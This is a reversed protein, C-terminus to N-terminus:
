LWNFQATALDDFNAKVKIREGQPIYKPGYYDYMDFVVVGLFERFQMNLVTKIYEESMGGEYFIDYAYLTKIKNNIRKFFIPLGAILGDTEIKKILKIEDEHNFQGLTKVWAQKMFELYTVSGYGVLPKVGAYFNLVGFIMFLSPYIEKKKLLDIIAERELPVALEKFREDKTMLKEGVMYLRLSQPRGPYKRWFFHTGKEKSEKWTVVIGRFNDLVSQRFEKNFLCRSIINDEKLIEILAETVIEEQTIYILEFLNPRLKKEFLYPWTNKIIITIQDLYNECRSFDLNKIKEFEVMLFDKEAKSFEKWKDAAKAKAIFDFDRKPIYYSCYERESNSFIPVRKDHFTFGNKSFYNNPPVDGSSIIITANEKRGSFIKDAGSIFNSSILVPHNLVQHHDAINFALKGELNINLDEKYNHGFLKEIKRSIIKKLIDQRKLHEKDAEFNYLEKPFDKLKVDLEFFRGLPPAYKKIQSIVLQKEKEIEQKTM